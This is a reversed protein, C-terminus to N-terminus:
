RVDVSRTEGDWEVIFGLAESIARVPVYTRSNILFVREGLPIPDPRYSAMAIDSGITFSISREGWSLIATRTADDWTVDIGATEAFRRLPVITREHYLFAGYSDGFDILADRFRVPIKIRRNYQDYVAKGIRGITQDAQYETTGKSYVAVAVPRECFIIGANHFEGPLSGTKAALTVTAPLYKGLRRRTTHCLDDILRQMLPENRHEYIYKLYILMEPACMGDQKFHGGLTEAWAEITPRGFHHLLMLKAINDSNRIAIRTLYGVSFTDGVKVYRQLSGSGSEYDAATYALQDTLSLHGEGVQIFTYLVLPLKVTSAWHFTEDPNIVTVDGTELDLIAVGYTGSQGKLIGEVLRKTQADEARAPPAVTVCLCVVLLAIVARRM